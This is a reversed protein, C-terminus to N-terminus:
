GIGLGSGVQEYDYTTVEIPNGWPDLFYLSWSEGHDSIKGGNLPEGDRMKLDLAELRGTFEIFEEGGLRFAVTSQNLSKESPRAFLAIGSGGGDGSITLPGGDKAWHEHETVIELGLVRRYWEAAEYQDGVFVHIHDISVSM